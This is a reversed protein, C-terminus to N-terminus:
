APDGPRPCLVAVPVVICNDRPAEPHWASLKVAGELRVIGSRRVADLGPLPTSLLALRPSGGGTYVAVIGHGCTAAELDARIVREALAVRQFQVGGTLLLGKPCAGANIGVQAARKVIQKLEYRIDFGAM